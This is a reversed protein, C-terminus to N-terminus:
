RLLYLTTLILSVVLIGAVAVWLWTEQADRRQKCSPCM